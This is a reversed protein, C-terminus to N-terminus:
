SCDMNWNSMKSKFPGIGFFFFYIFFLNEAILRDLLIILIVSNSIIRQNGKVTRYETHCEMKGAINPGNAQTNEPTHTM